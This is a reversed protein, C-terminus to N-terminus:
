KEPQVEPQVKLEIGNAGGFGINLGDLRERIQPPVAAKDQQTQYPGSWQLNNDKDFVKAETSDGDRSIEIRGEGDMMNVSSKMGMQIAGRGGPQLHLMGMNADKMMKEVRGRLDAAGPPLIQIGAAGGAIDNAGLAKLNKEIADRMEKPLGELMRQPAPGDGPECNELGAVQEAPRPVLALSKESLQGRHIVSVKVSDGPKHKELVDCLCDHCKVHQGDVQTIVDSEEIGAQAAPGNPDILRVLACADEALGLHAALVPPVPAMGLGIYAKDVAAAQAKQADKKEKNGEALDSQAAAPASEERQEKPAQNPALPEVKQPPELAFIRFATLASISLTVTHLKM